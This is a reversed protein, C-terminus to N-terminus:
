KAPKELYNNLLLVSVIIAIVNIPLTFFCATFGTAIALILGAFDWILYGILLAIGVSKNGAYIWGLGLIGLLGPLIELLIALERGPKIAVGSGADKAQVPGAPPISEAPSSAADIVQRESPTEPTQPSEQPEGGTYQPSPDPIEIFEPPIGESFTSRPLNIENGLPAGCNICNKADAPNTTDCNPCIM